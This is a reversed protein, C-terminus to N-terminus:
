ILSKVYILSYGPIYSHATPMAMPYRQLERFGHREFFKRGSFNDERVSLHVGKIGEEKLQKLFSEMLLSGANKGRHSGKVNIHLHAPFERYPMQRKLGGMKASILAVKLLHWTSRRLFVGRFVAKVLAPPLIRRSVTKLYHETDPCGCLYGIVEGSFVAVWLYRPAYDTYYNMLIDSFVERDSFFNEVPGGLDATDCGISRVFARDSALYRRVLLPDNM